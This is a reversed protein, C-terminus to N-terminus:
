HRARRGAGVAGGRARPAFRPGCPSRTPASSKRRTSAACCRPPKRCNGTPAPRALELDPKQWDNPQYSGALLVPQEDFGDLNGPHATWADMLVYDVRKGAGITGPMGLWQVTVPAPGHAFLGVRNGATVQNLDVLVDIGDERIRAATDEDSLETINVFRDFAKRFRQRMESGDDKWNAYAFWEIDDHRHAEMVGAFLFGIAHGRLDSSLYGVKLKRGPGPSPSRGIKM